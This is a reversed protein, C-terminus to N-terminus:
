VAKGAAWMISAVGMLVVLYAIGTQTKTVANGIAGSSFDPTPVLTWLSILWSMTDAIAGGLTNIFNEIVGAVAGSVAKEAHCFPNLLSCSKEPM